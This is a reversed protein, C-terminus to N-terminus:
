LPVQSPRVDYNAKKLRAVFDPFSKSAELIVRLADEDEPEFATATLFPHTPPEVGVPLMATSRLPGPGEKFRLAEHGKLYASYTPQPPTTPVAAEKPARGCAGAASLMATLLLTMRM